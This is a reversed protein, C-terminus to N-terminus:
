NQFRTLLKWKLSYKGFLKYSMFKFFGKRKNILIDREIEPMSFYILNSSQRRITEKLELLFTTKGSQYPGHIIYSKGGYIGSIVKTFIKRKYVPLM